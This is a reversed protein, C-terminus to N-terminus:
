KNMPQGGVAPPANPAEKVQVVVKGSVLLSKIADLKANAAQLESIMVNRQEASNPLVQQPQAAAPWARILGGGVLGIVVGVVLWASRSVWWGNARRGVPTEAREGLQTGQTM